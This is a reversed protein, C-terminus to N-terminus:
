NRFLVNERNCEERSTAEAVPYRRVNTFTQECLMLVTGISTLARNQVAAAAAREVANSAWDCRGTVLAM